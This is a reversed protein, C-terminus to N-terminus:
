ANPRAYGLKQIRKPQFYGQLGLTTLSGAAELDIFGDSAVNSEDLFACVLEGIVLYTGNHKIPMIDVLKMGLQIPSGDVFPIAFEPRRLENLAVHDFESVGDPYKASTQHAAEIQGSAVHNMTFFGTSEINNLTHPTAEKPRNIFGILTPDAGLHVINTFLAVNSIGAADQTVILTSPKFGSLCNVFNARHYRDMAQLDLPTYCKM